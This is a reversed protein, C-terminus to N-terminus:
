SGIPADVAPTNENDGALLSPRIQFTPRRSRLVVASVFAVEVQERDTQPSSMWLPLGSRGSWGVDAIKEDDVPFGAFQLLDGVNVTLQKRLEVESLRFHDPVLAEVACSEPM